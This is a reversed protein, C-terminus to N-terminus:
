LKFWITRDLKYSTPAKHTAFVWWLEITSTHNDQNFPHSPRFHKLVMSLPVSILLDSYKCFPSCIKHQGGNFLWYLLDLTGYTINGTERIQRVNENDYICSLHSHIPHAHEALLCVLSACQGCQGHLGRDLHHWSRPQHGNTPQSRPPVGYCKGPRWGAHLRPHLLRCSICICVGLRNRTYLCFFLFM